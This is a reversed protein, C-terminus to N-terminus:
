KIVTLTPRPPEEPRPPRGNISFHYDLKTLEFLMELDEDVNILDISGRYPPLRKRQLAYLVGLGSSDIYHTGKLDMVYRGASGTRAHRRSAHDEIMEKLQQRNGVILQSPIAVLTDHARETLRFTPDAM